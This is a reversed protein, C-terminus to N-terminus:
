YRSFIGAQKLLNFELELNPTFINTGLNREIENFTWLRLEEVEDPNKRGSTKFDHTVFLYVLESEIDTDWRYAKMLKASFDILGIEEEAERRLATELSEGFSVHGGVSSDWKGPQITKSMPRKQLMLTKNPGVVHLHVVPHLIKIGKHAEPRTIKGLIKGSDDVVPLWEVDAAKKINMRQRALEFLFYVGFLM